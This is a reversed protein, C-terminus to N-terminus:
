IWLTLNKSAPRLVLRLCDSTSAPSTYRLDRVPTDSTGSQHIQSISLYESINKTLRGYSGIKLINYLILRLRAEPLTRTPVRYLVRRTGVRGCWGRTCGGGGRVATMCGAAARVLPIYGHPEFGDVLESRPGILPQKPTHGLTIVSRPTPSLQTIQCIELVLYAPTDM